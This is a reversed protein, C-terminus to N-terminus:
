NKLRRLAGETAARRPIGEQAGPKLTALAGACNAYRIASVADLGEARRAAYAGAFADGAGVTDVPKVALTAIETRGEADLCVTPRSGRTIVLRQIQWRALRRRLIAAKKLSPGFIARAEGSNVVLTDLACSSWPFGERLPSPNLVVPVNARNAVRIAEIVAPMPVEFQLLLTRATAIQTKSTRILLPSMAGNAGSSVVIMNEGKKDVAILAVGTPFSRATSIGASSIHEASLRRRYSAGDNDDGVCGILAVRAGQRAAAVAQNAGKGGFQRIFRAAAVTEGAAPLQEVSAIYDVNLSGVVAVKYNPKRENNTM